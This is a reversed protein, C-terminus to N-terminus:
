SIINELKKEAEGDVINKIEKKTKLIAMAMTNTTWGNALMYTKILLHIFEMAKEKIKQQNAKMNEEMTESLLELNTQFIERGYVKMSLIPWFSCEKDMKKMMKLLAQLFVAM